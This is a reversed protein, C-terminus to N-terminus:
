PCCSSCPVQPRRPAAGVAPHRLVPADRPASARTGCCRRGKSM